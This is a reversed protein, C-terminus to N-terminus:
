HSLRKPRGWGQFLGTLIEEDTVDHDSRRIGVITQRATDGGLKEIRAVNEKATDEENYLQDLTTQWDLPRNAADATLHLPFDKNSPSPWLYAVAWVAGCLLLVAAVVALPTWYRKRNTSIHQQESTPASMPTLVPAIADIGTKRIDMRLETPSNVFVILHSGSHENLTIRGEGGYPSLADPHDAKCLTALHALTARIVSRRLPVEISESVSDNKVTVLCRGNDWNLTMDYNQAAEILTKAVSRIGDSPTSLDRQLTRLHASAVSM